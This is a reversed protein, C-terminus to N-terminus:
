RRAADSSFKGPNGQVGSLWGLAVCAACLQIEEIWSQAQACMEVQRLWHSVEM